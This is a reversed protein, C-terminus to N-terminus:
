LKEEKRKCKKDKKNNRKGFRDHVAAVKDYYCILWGEKTKPPIITVPFMHHLIMDQQTKTLPYKKIANNLAIRPHKFWHFRHKQNDGHLNYLYYDHLLAAQVFEVIDIKLKKKKHHKYCLYAVKLSHNFLNGKIHHQYNKMQKFEETRIIDKVIQYFSIEEM